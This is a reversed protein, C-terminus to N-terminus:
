HRHEDLGGKTMNRSSFPSGRSRDLVLKRRRGVARLLVSSPQSDLLESSVDWSKDCLRPAHAPGVVM